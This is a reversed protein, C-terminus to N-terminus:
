MPLYARLKGGRIERKVEELFRVIEDAEWGEAEMVKLSIGEMGDHYNEQAFKGVQKYYEGEAWPGLPWYFTRETVEDFGIEEM